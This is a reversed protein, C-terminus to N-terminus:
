HQIKCFVQEGQRKESPTTDYLETIDPHHCPTSTLLGPFLLLLDLLFTKMYRYSWLAQITYTIMKATSAEEPYPM